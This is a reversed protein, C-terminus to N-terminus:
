CAMLFVGPGKAGTRQKGTYHLYSKCGINIKSKLDGILM